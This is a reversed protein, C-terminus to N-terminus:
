YGSGDPAFIIPKIKEIDTLKDDKLVLEDAKVDM